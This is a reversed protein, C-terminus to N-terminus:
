STLLLWSFNPVKKPPPTFSLTVSEEIVAKPPDPKKVEVIVPKPPEPKPEEKKVEVVVPKPPDVKKPEEKPAQWKAPSSSASSPTGSVLSLFLPYL